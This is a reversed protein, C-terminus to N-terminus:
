LSSDFCRTVAGDNPWLHSRDNKCSCQFPLESSKVTASRSCDTVSDSDSVSPCPTYTAYSKETSAQLDIIGNLNTGLSARARRWLISIYPSVRRINRFSPNAAFM